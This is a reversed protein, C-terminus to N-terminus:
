CVDAYTLMRWCVDAYTLMRVRCACSDLGLMDQLQWLCVNDTGTEPWECYLAQKQRGAICHRNRAVRLVTCTEPWGCYLWSFLCRSWIFAACSSGAMCVARISVYASTHQRISVYASTHQGAGSLLQAALARWVFRERIYLITHTHTHTYSYMYIIYHTYTHIYLIIYIHIYMIYIHIYIIYQIYTCINIYICIYMRVYISYYINYYIHIYVCVCVCAYIYVYIIFLIYVLQLYFNPLYLAGYLNIECRREKYGM